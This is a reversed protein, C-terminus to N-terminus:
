AVRTQHTGDDARHKARSRHPGHHLFHSAMQDDSPATEGRRRACLSSHRQGRYRSESRGKRGITPSRHKPELGNVESRGMVCPKASRNRISGPVRTFRSRCSGASKEANESREAASCCLAFFPVMMLSNCSRRYASPLRASSTTTCPVSVAPLYPVMSWTKLSVPGRPTVTVAKRRGLSSSSACSKKHRACKAQGRRPYTPM